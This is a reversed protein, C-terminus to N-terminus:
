RRKRLSDVKKEIRTVREDIDELLKRKKRNLYFTIGQFILWLIVILGVAQIWLGLRGVEIILDEIGVM